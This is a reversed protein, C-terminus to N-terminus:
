LHAGINLIHVVHDVGVGGPLLARSRESEPAGSIRMVRRRQPRSVSVRASRPQQRSIGDGHRPVPVGARYIGYSRAVQHARCGIQKRRSPTDAGSSIRPIYGPNDRGTRGSPLRGACHGSQKRVRSLQICLLQAPLKKM